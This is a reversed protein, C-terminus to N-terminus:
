TPAGVDETGSIPPLTSVERHLVLTMVHSLANLVLRLALLGFGLPLMSSISWTPLGLGSSSAAGSAFDDLTKQSAALACWAFVPAAMANTLAELVYRTHRDLYNHVIDVAVHGHAQFTHSVSFFFLGPMLYSSVIEYSWALPANFLYRLGVDSVILLMLAFLMASGVWMLASDLTNVARRLGAFVLRPPSDNTVLLNTM